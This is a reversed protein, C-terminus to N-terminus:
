KVEKLIRDLLRSIKQERARDIDIPNFILRMQELMIELDALEGCVDRKSIRKRHLKKISHIVEACEEVLMEIQNNVGWLNIAKKYIAKENQM